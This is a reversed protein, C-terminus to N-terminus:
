GGALFGRSPTSTRGALVNPVYCVGREPRSWSLSIRPLALAVHLNIAEGADDGSGAECIAEADAADNKHRKVYPKVYAAADLAGYSWSRALERSLQEIHGGLALSL